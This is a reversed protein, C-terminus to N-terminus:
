LKEKEKKIKYGSLYASRAIAHNSMPTTVIYIALILLIKASFASIGYKLLFGLIVTIFGFTDTNATVLIRSYFDNFSFTGYIGLAIFVVGAAIVTNGIWEM